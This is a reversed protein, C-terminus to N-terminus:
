ICLNKICEILNMAELNIEDDKMLEFDKNLFLGVENKWDTMQILVIEYEKLSKLVYEKSEEIKSSNLNYFDMKKQLKRGYIEISLLIEDIEEILLKITDEMNHNFVYKGEKQYKRILCLIKELVKISKLITKSLFTIESLGIKEFSLIKDKSTLKILKEEIITFSDVRRGYLDKDTINSNGGISLNDDETKSINITKLANSFLSLSVKNEKSFTNARNDLVKSNLKKKNEDVSDKNLNDEKNLEYTNCINIKIKDNKMQSNKEKKLNSKRKKESEERQEGKSKSYENEQRYDVVIIEIQNDEISSLSKEKMEDELDNDNENNRSKMNKKTEHSSQLVQKYKNGFSKLIVNIEAEKEKKKRSGDNSLISYKEDYSIGTVKSIFKRINVFSNAHKSKLMMNHTGGKVILIESNEIHKVKEYIYKGDKILIVNDKDGHVIFVPKTISDLKDISSFMDFFFTRKLYFITRLISLLPAQLIIGGIPFTNDSALDISVATGLSHGILFIKDYSFNLEKVIYKYVERIHYYVGEESKKLFGCEGYGPYEYSVVCCNLNLSIDACQNFSM